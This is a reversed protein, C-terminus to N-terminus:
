LLVSFCTCILFALVMSKITVAAPMKGTDKRIFMAEYLPLNILVLAVCLWIQLASKEVVNWGGTILVRWVTGALTFMNLLAFTALMIFMPSSIGFEIIEKEQRKAVDKDVTKATVAFTMESLGLLKLINDITSLIYGSTRKYLWIRQENWWGLLTGECCLYEKISYAYTSLITYSFALFWPNSIEPFLPVGKFLFLSAITCYCLTPFGNSAWLMHYSYCIQLGLSIKGHGFWLPCYKSLMLELLGEGWRKQQVLVQDLTMASGGSFAERKPKLYVSRWGRCQISLGTLVDENIFGYNFGMEKGWPSDLEYTCSALEKSKEELEEASAQINLEHVISVWELKYDQSFKKGCLTDRRHFCGSGIYVPGGFGDYGHFDVEMGTRLSGAYIDNKTLNVFRQALQVYAIQQGHKEDMLCCLAERVAQSNSSYMDSDVNLIVKGNSIQSSVRVLANLAGAKFNHFHQPRKERALYVVTPLQSGEIDKVEPDRGNILIQLITDHDRRSSYSTWQPFGQHKMHIEKPIKGVETAREIRKEMEEYLA